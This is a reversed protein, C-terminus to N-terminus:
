TQSMIKQLKAESAKLSAEKEELKKEAKKLREEVEKITEENKDKKKLFPKALTDHISIGSREHWVSVWYLNFFIGVGCFMLFWIVAKPPHVGDFIRRNEEIERARIAGLYVLGSLFSVLYCIIFTLM